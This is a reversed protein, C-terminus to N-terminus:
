AIKPSAPYTNLDKPERFLGLYYNRLTAMMSDMHRETVGQSM